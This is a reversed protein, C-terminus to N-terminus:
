IKLMCLIHSSSLLKKKMSDFILLRRGGKVSNSVIEIRGNELGDGYGRFFPAGSVITLGKEDDKVNL